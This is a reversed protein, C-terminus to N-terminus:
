VVFRSKDSHRTPEQAHRVIEKRVWDNEDACRDLSHPSLVVLFIPASDIADMIRRDFVGDKLEDFDLFVNYNRLELEAKLPRAFERGGDRRYSIFIDYAM